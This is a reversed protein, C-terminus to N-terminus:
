ADVTFLTVDLLQLQNNAVFQALPFKRRSPVDDFTKEEKIIENDSEYLLFIYRHQGTGPRPGPGTYPGLYNSLNASFRVFIHIRVFLNDMVVM